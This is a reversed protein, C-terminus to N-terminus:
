LVNTHKYKQLISTCVLLSNIGEKIIKVPKIHKFYRRRSWSGALENEYEEMIATSMYSRVEEDAKLSDDSINGNDRTVVENLFWSHSSRKEYTSDCRNITGDRDVDDDKYLHSFKRFHPLETIASSTEIDSKDCINHNANSRIAVSNQKKNEDIARDISKQLKDFAKLVSPLDNAFSRSRVIGNKTSPVTNYTHVTKMKIKEDRVSEIKDVSRNEKTRHRYRQQLKNMETIYTSPQEAIMTMQEINQMEDNKIKKKMENVNKDTQNNKNSKMDDINNKIRINAKSSKKITDMILSTSKLEEDDIKKNNLASDGYIFNRFSNTFRNQVYKTSTASGGCGGIRVILKEQFNEENRSTDALVSLILTSNKAINTFIFVSHSCLYLCLAFSICFINTCIFIHLRLLASFAVCICYDCALHRKYSINIKQQLRLINKIYRIINQITHCSFFIIDCANSFFSYNNRIKNKFRM